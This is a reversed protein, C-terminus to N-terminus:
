AHTMEKGFREILSNVLGPIDYTEPLPGPEYGMARVADATIPGICALSASELWEARGSKALLDRTARAIESSTLTIIDPTESPLDASEARVIRYATVEDVIAGGERLLIALDKRALDARALLFRKGSVDGLADAISESVYEEPVVDPTRFARELAQATAPGIAALKRGSLLENPLALKEMERRVSEVGNVSTFVIWDYTRLDGLATRLRDIDQPPEIQVVPVTFVTAGLAELRSKMGGSQHDPRTTLIKKGALTKM